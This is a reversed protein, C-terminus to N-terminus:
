EFYREVCGSTQLPLNRHCHSAYMAKGRQEARQFNRRQLESGPLQPTRRAPRPGVWSPLSLPSIKAHCCCSQPARRFVDARRHAQECSSGKVEQSTLETGKDAVGKGRQVLRAPFWEPTSVKLLLKWFPSSHTIPGSRHAQGADALQIEESRSKDFPVFQLWSEGPWRGM